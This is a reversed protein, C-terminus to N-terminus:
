EARTRRQYEKLRALAREIEAIPERLDADATVHALHFAARQLAERAEAVIEIPGGRVDSEYLHSRIEGPVRHYERQMRDLADSLRRSEHSCSPLRQLQAHARNISHRLRAHELRHIAHEQQRREISSAPLRALTARARDLWRGLEEDEYAYVTLRNGIPGM